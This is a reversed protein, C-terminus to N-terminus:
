VVKRTEVMDVRVGAETLRTQADEIRDLPILAEVMQALVSLSDPVLQGGVEEVLPRLGETWSMMEAKLAERSVPTGGGPGHLSVRLCDEGSRGPEILGRSRLREIGAADM